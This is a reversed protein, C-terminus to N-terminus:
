LIKQLGFYISVIVFIGFMSIAAALHIADVRCQQGHKQKFPDGVFAINPWHKLEKLFDCPLQNKSIALTRLAPFQIAFFNEIKWLENAEINLHRIDTPLRKLNITQLQNCSIDLNRLDLQNQVTASDFYTLSCNSLNLTRLKILQEFPQATLTKISNGSLDLIELSMGLVKVPDSISKLRCNAARFETLQSLTVSIVSFNLIAMNNHSIDLSKLAALEAFPNSDGIELNTDSLNLKRLAGFRDFATNNLKGVHNGSLNLKEVSLTSNLILEMLNEIRNGAVNFEQLNKLGRLASANELHKLNNYSIDFKTLNKLTALWEFDFHTLGTDSLFLSSLATFRQFTTTSTIQNGSLNLHWISPGLCKMFESINEFSNQGAILHRAIKFSNANCHLKYKGDSTAFVGEDSSSSRADSNLIVHMKKNDCYSNGYFASVNQWNLFVSVSSAMVKTHFCDFSAIPNEHLRIVTLAPNKPFVPVKMFRNGTLDIFQLQPVGSFADFNISHLSNYAMILKQLKEAGDFLRKSDLHTLDNYSLDIELLKPTREVFGWPLFALSNHSLNLVQLHNHKLNLWKLSKYASQSIDLRQMSPFTEIERLVTQNSCGAVKLEHVEDTKVQNKSCNERIESNACFKALLKTQEVYFECRIENASCSCSFVTAFAILLRFYVIFKM